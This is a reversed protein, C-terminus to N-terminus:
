NRGVPWKEKRQGACWILEVVRAAECGGTVFVSDVAESCFDRLIGIRSQCRRQESRKTRLNVTSRHSMVVLRVRIRKTQSQVNKGAELILPFSDREKRKDGVGMGPGEM